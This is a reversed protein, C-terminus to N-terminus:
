STQSDTLLESIFAEDDIASPLDHDPDEDTTDPAFAAGTLASLSESLQQRFEIREDSGAVIPLGVTHGVVPEGSRRALRVAEVDRAVDLDGVASGFSRRDVTTEATTHLVLDIGLPSNEAPVILSYDDAMDVDFSVPVVAVADASRPQRVWVLVIPGGQTSSLRWLQGTAVEPTQSTRLSSLVAPDVYAGSEPLVVGEFDGDDFADPGTGMEVESDQQDSM